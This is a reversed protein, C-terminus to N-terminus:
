PARYNNKSTEESFQLMLDKENKMEPYRKILDACIDEVILTAYSDKYMVNGILIRWIDKCEVTITNSKKIEEKTRNMEDLTYVIDKVIDLLEVDDDGASVLKNEYGVTIVNDKKTKIELELSSAGRSFYINDYVILDGNEYEHTLIRGQPKYKVRGVTQLLYIFRNNIRESEINSVPYSEVLKHVRVGVEPNFRQKEM